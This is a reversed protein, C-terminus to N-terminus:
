GRSREALSSIKEKLAQPNVIATEVWSRSPLALDDAFWPMTTKGFVVRKLFEAALKIPRSQIAEPTYSMWIPLSYSLGFDLPIFDDTTAALYTPLLGIGVGARISEVMCASVNTYARALNVGSDKLLTSLSGHDLLYHEQEIMRHKKFDEIEQPLGFAEEYKKSAFPLMHLMGLRSSHMDLEVPAYYHIHLDGPERKFVDRQAILQLSMNPYVAHFSNLFRPLWYTAIGDGLVIRCNGEIPGQRQPRLRTTRAFFARAGTGEQLLLQGEYTPQLGSPTRDFLRVGLTCELRALRRMITPKSINLAQAARCASGTASLVLAIRVDDWSLAETL